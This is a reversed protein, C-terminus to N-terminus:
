GETGVPKKAEYETGKVMNVACRYVQELIFMNDVAALIKFIKKLYARKMGQGGEDHERCVPLDAGSGMRQRYICYSQSDEKPIRSEEHRM